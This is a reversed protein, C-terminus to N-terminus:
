GVIEFADSTAAHEHIVATASLTMSAQVLAAEAEIVEKSVQVDMLKLASSLSNTLVIKGRSRVREKFEKQLWDNLFVHGGYARGYDHDRSVIIAHGSSRCAYHVIWEWNIADGISLDDDKRPPYGLM